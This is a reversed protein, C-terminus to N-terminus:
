IPDGHGTFSLYGCVHGPQEGYAACDPNIYVHKTKKKFTQLFNIRIAVQFTDYLPNLSEM